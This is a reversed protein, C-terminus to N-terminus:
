TLPTKSLKRLALLTVEISIVVLAYPIIFLRLNFTNFISALVQIFSTRSPLNILLVASAALITVIYGIAIRKATSLEFEICLLLSLSHAIFGTAFAALAMVATVMEAGTKYPLIEAVILYIATWIVPVALIRLIVLLLKKLNM